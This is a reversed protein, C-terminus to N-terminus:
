TPRPSVAFRMAMEAPEIMALWTLPPPKHIMALYKLMDTLSM